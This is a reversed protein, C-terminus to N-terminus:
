KNKEKSLSDTSTDKILNSDFKFKPGKNISDSTRSSQDSDENNSIKNLKESNPRAKTKNELIQDDIIQNIYNHDNMIKNIIDVNSEISEGNNFIQNYMNTIESVSGGVNLIKKNTKKYFNILDEYRKYELFFNM